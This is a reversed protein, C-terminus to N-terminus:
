SNRVESTTTPPDQGQKAAATVQKKIATAAAKGAKVKASEFGKVEKDVAKVKSTRDALLAKTPDIIGAKTADLRSLLAYGGQDAADGLYELRSEAVGQVAKSVEAYLEKLQEFNEKRGVTGLKDGFVQM